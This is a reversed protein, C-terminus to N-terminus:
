SIRAWTALAYRHPVIGRKGRRQGHGVIRIQGRKLMRMRLHQVSYRSSDLCRALELDTMPGLALAGLVRDRLAPPALLVEAQASM